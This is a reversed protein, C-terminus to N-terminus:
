SPLPATFPFRGCDTSLGEDDWPKAAGTEWEADLGGAVGVSTILYITTTM